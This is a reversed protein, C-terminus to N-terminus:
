LQNEGADIGQIYAAGDDPEYVSIRARAVVTAYNGDNECSEDCAGHENGTSGTSSESALLQCDFMGLGNSGVLECQVRVRLLSGAAFTPQLAEFKRSGLLFGIRAPANRQAAQWGAWAAVTQAMYEIGVWAPVAGNQVFLGDHRVRVEAVAHEASAELLRDLLLMAGRHPVYREIPLYGNM